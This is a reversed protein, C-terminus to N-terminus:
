HRRRFGPGGKERESTAAGGYIVNGRKEDFKQTGYQLGLEKMMARRESRSSIPVGRVGLENTSTCRPDKHQLLQTDVYPEFPDDFGRMPGHDEKSGKCFPFDNIGYIAGCRECEVLKGAKLLRKEEETHM